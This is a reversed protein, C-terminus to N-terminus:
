MLTQMAKNKSRKKILSKQYKESFQLMLKVLEETYAIIDVDCAYRVTKDAADFIQRKREERLDFKDKGAAARKVLLMRKEFLAIIKADVADISRKIDM